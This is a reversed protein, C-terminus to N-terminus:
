SSRERSSGQRAAQAAPRVRPGRPSRERTGPSPPGPAPAHRPEGPKAPRHRAVVERLRQKDIQDSM